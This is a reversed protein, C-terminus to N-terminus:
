YMTTLKNTKKSMPVIITHVTLHCTMWGCGKMLPLPRFSYIMRVRIGREGAGDREGERQIRGTVARKGKETQRDTQRWERHTHWILRFLVATLWFRVRSGSVRRSVSVKVSRHIHCESFGLLRPGCHWVCLQRTSVTIVAVLKDQDMGLFM